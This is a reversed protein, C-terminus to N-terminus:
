FPSLQATSEIEIKLLRTVASEVISYDPWKRGTLREYTGVVLLYRSTWTRCFDSISVGHPLWFGFQPSKVEESESEKPNVTFQLNENLLEKIHNSDPTGLIRITNFWNLIQTWDACSRVIVTALWRAPAEFEKGPIDPSYDMCEQGLPFCQLARLVTRVSPTDRALDMPKYLAEISLLGVRILNEVIVLFHEQIKFRYALARVTSSITHARSQPTAHEKGFWPETIGFDGYEPYDTNILGMEHSVVGGAAEFEAATINGLRAVPQHLLPLAENEPTLVRRARGPASCFTIDIYDRYMIDMMLRTKPSDSAVQPSSRRQLPVAPENLKGKVFARQKELTWIEDPDRMLGFTRIFAAGFISNRLRGSISRRASYSKECDRASIHIYINRQNSVKFAKAFAGSYCAKIVINVQVDLAFSACASALDAPTFTRGGLLIGQPNGHGILIISVIDGPRARETRTKIWELVRSIVTRCEERNLQEWWRTRHEFDFRTYVTLEDGSDWEGSGIEERRGFKVDSYGSTVFYNGLDFCNIFTGNIPYPLERLASTFGLFDGFLWVDRANEVGCVVLHSTM